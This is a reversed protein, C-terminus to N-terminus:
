KEVILDDTRISFSGSRALEVVSGPNLGKIEDASMRIGFEKLFRKLCSPGTGYYGFAMRHIDFEGTREGSILKTGDHFELIMKFESFGSCCSLSKMPGHTERLTKALEGIGPCRWDEEADEYAATGFAVIKRQWDGSLGKGCKECLVSQPLHLITRCKPCQVHLKSYQYIDNLQFTVEASCKQCKYFPIASDWAECETCSVIRGDSHAARSTLAQLVERHGYRAAAMPATFGASATANVDAGEDLLANVVELHGDFSALMLATVGDNRKANVKAGQALLAKLADLHGKQSAVMLATAGNNDRADVDVGKASLAQVEDVRNILSATMLATGGNNDRADSAAGGALLAEMVELQGNQTALMLATSGDNRKANVRAGKALLVM